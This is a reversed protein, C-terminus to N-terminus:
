KGRNGLRQNDRIYGTRFDTWVFHENFGASAPNAPRIDMDLVPQCIYRRQGVHRSMLRRPHNGRNPFADALQCDALANYGMQEERAPMAVIATGPTVCLTCMNGSDDAHCRAAPKRLKKFCGRPVQEGQRFGNRKISAPEGAACHNSGYVRIPPRPEMDALRGHHQSRASDPLDQHLDQFMGASADNSNTARLFAELKGFSTSSIRADAEAICHKRLL